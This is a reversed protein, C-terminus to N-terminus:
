FYTEWDGKYSTIHKIQQSYLTERTMCYDQAEQCASQIESSIQGLEQLQSINNREEDIWLKLLQAPIDFTFKSEGMYEHVLLKVGDNTTDFRFTRTVINNYMPRLTDVRKSRRRMAKPSLSEDETVVKGNRLECIALNADNLWAKVTIHGCDLPDPGQLKIKLTMDKATLVDQLTMIGQGIQSMTGTMREKVNYVTLKVRTCTDVGNTMDGFGVTKLFVPSNNKESVETHNHQIWTTQAPPIITYLAVFPNPPNGTSDNPLNECSLSVEIAPDEETNGAGIEFELDTETPMTQSIPDRGTRAQLQERLSQLQMKLCEYSAIHLAQIWCDREEEDKAAFKYAYDDGEYVIMFSNGKEDDVMLEITCRELVLVGIPDSKMEKSKFYFLLNGRLRFYREVFIEGKKFLGDQKDRMMLCGEKVFNESTQQALQCLEKHNFRM